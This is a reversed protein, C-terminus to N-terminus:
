SKTPTKMRIFGPVFLILLNASLFVAVGFMLYNTEGFIGMMPGAIAMGIPMLATSAMADVSMVRARLEDPVERQLASTWFVGLPETSMGAVFYALIIVWASDAFALAFPVSAFFSWFIVSMLGPYLSKWRAAVLATLVAGASFVAMATTYVFDTGFERRSIIPILVIEAGIVFTISVSFAAISWAVWRIQWVLSLGEKLERVFSPKITRDMEVKPENIRVLLLTGVAFMIGTFLFGYRAGVTAILIGAIGPGVINGLRSTIVRAANAPQLFEKPLITPLIAGSAPMGFATATGALFVFVVLVATPAAPAAIFLGIGIFLRTIDTYIMVTKRQLRDAWVGGILSMVVFASVRAALVLGLESAGAGRDLMTIAIAIPFVQDGIVALAGASWLL